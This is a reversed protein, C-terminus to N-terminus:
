FFFSKTEFYDRSTLMKEQVALLNLIIGNKITAHGEDLKLQKSSGPVEAMNNGSDVQMMFNFLLNKM